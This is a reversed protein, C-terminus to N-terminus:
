QLGWKLFHHSAIIVRCLQTIRTYVQKWKHFVVGEAEVLHEWMQEDLASTHVEVRLKGFNCLLVAWNTQILYTFSINDRHRTVCPVQTVWLTKEPPELGLIITRNALSLYSQVGQDISADFYFRLPWSITPTFWVYDVWFLAATFLVTFITASLSCVIM